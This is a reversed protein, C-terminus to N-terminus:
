DNEYLGYIDIMATWSDEFEQSSQLDYVLGQITRFISGKDVHYEFKKPLKKLIHQLCWRHKTNPFVIQIANQIARDQDTIIGHLAEGYLCQLQTRFLWVFTDIDGNSVLGCGFLTSQRHYNIGVFSTFTMDYKNTLYTMDFTVM